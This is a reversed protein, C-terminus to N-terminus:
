NARDEDTTQPNVYKKTHALSYTLPSYPTQGHVFCSPHKILLGEFEHFIRSEFPLYMNKLKFTLLDTVDQKPFTLFLTEIKSVVTEIAEKVPM